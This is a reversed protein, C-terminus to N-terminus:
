TEWCSGNAENVSAVGQLAGAVVWTNKSTQCKSFKTIAWVFEGVTNSAVLKIFNVGLIIAM